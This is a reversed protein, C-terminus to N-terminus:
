WPSRLVTARTRVLEALEEPVPEADLASLVKEVTEEAVDNTRRADFPWRRAEAVIDDIRIVDPSEKFNVTMAFHPRLKPWLATPVTDYLPALSIVGPEAHLLAVNKGHADANGILLTFTIAAVLHALETTADASYRDLLEAIQRLDPGGASEYKGRGHARESSLGLAQCADEQHQRTLTGDRTRRDFRSVILCPKGASVRTQVEVTTLDCARALRLCAAEMEVMRPYEADEVKLIHTSPRGHIPRGWEGNDLAILLLKDQLGPLSLESDDYLALPRDPLESVEHSLSEDTYPEVEGIREEPDSESIVVAGAVDRGFRALLAYTDNVLAGAEAAMFRLQDGEPLLERFYISANQRAKVLPLSCSLLPANGPWRELADTTYACRVVAGNKDPTLEAVRVGYLWVGLPSRKPM